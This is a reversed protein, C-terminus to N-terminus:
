AGATLKLEAIPTVKPDSVLTWNSAATLQADTPSATYGTKPKSYSFGNPLITERIRTWLTNQGGNTKPDRSVEAPVEVNARAHRVAGRAFLYVNDNCADDVVVTLGDIDAINLKRQIGSPDTYKRFELADVKEFLKASGSSMIALSLSDRHDGFADTAADHVTTPEIATKAVSIVHSKIATNALVADAIGILTKQRYHAWFAAVQSVISAMPDAGSNYDRVFQSESWGQTRGYVIGSLTSGGTTAVPIDTAGDYNAPNGTLVNMFPVTYTDSGNQIRSAIDADEVMAGSDLFATLVPDQAARWRMDFIEEDFPFGLYTGAM